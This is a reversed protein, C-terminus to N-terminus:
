ADVDPSLGEAVIAALNDSPIVHERVDIILPPRFLCKALTFLVESQDYLRDRGEDRARFSVTRKIIDVPADHVIGTQLQFLNAQVDDMRVILLTVQLFPTM